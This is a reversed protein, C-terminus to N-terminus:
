GGLVLIHTTQSHRLNDARDFAKAQVTYQGAMTPADVEWTCNLRKDDCVLSASRTLSVGGPTEAIFEVTLRDLGSLDDTATGTVLAKVVGAFNILVAGDPTAVEAGPTVSDVNLTITSSASNGANDTTVSAVTLGEGEESVVVDPPCVEVGSLADSCVYSVTVPGQNWGNANPPPSVSASISPATKDISLRVSGTACNGLPDCSPGSTYVVNRGETGAVTDAPTTPPGSSPSPDSALWRVLVDERYWGKSNAPRDPQGTLIPPTVDEAVTVTRCAILKNGGPGVNIAYVCVPYSGAPAVLVSDFGHNDGSGPFAAGVDPRYTDALIAYGPAGSGASGGVYVHVALSAGRDNPDIAWGRVRVHRAPPPGIDDYAGFPDPDAVGVDRCGLLVNSGAGINIAYVCVPYNGAQAVIVADFGHYNGSGPFASGVDQRYGDARIAHGPAGSGAPGGLYVHIDLAAGRDNPDIAWGSVRVTGPEPSGAADYSGFPGDQPPTTDRTTSVLCCRAEGTNTIVTAGDSNRTWWGHYEPGSSHATYGGISLGNASQRIGDKVITFHVHNFTSGGGCPTAQGADGLYTGAAVHQGVLQRQENILHYYLSEWGAGHDIKLYSASGCTQLRVTGAAAAVVRRSAGGIPGFDLSGM